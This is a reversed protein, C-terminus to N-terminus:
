MKRLYSALILDQSATEESLQVCKAEGLFSSPFSVLRLTPIPEIM